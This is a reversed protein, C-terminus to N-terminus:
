IECNLYTTLEDIERTIKEIEKRKNAVKKMVCILKIIDDNAKIMENRHEGVCNQNEIEKLHTIQSILRHTSNNCTDKFNELSENLKELSCHTNILEQREYSDETNRLRRTVIDTNCLVVDPNVRLESLKIIPYTIACGDFNHAQSDIDLIYNTEKFKLDNDGRMIICISNSGYEFVIGSVEMSACSYAGNKISFSLLNSDNEIMMIDNASYYDNTDIHIYVKQGKKNIAKLFQSNKTGIKHIVIYGLDYLEDNISDQLIVIPVPDKPVPLPISKMAPLQPMSIPKKPPIIKNSAASKNAPFPITKSTQPLTMGPLNPLNLVPNLDTM